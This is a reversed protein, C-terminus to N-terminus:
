PAPAAPKTEAPQGFMQAAMKMGMEQMARQQAQSSKFQELQAPSLVAAARALSQEQLQAYERLYQAISQENFVSPDPPTSPDTPFNASYHYNTREGYLALILEHEQPENLRDDGSLSQKFLNVQLREPQTMEYEKYIAFNEAGLMDRIRADYDDTLAKLAATKAERQKPGLSADMLDLSADMQAMQKDLLLGKFSELQEPALDLYKLLPGHTIDMTGKQQAKIMERMGPDKLMKAIAAMPPVNTAAAGIGSRAPTAPAPVPLNAPPEKAIQARLDQVTRELRVREKDTLAPTGSHKSAAPSAAAPNRLASRTSAALQARLQRIEALQWLNLAGAAMTTIGFTVALNLKWHM